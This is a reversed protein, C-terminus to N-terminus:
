NASWSTSNYKMSSAIYARQSGDPMTYGVFCREEGDRIKKWTSCVTDGKIAWVGTDTGSGWDVMMKGDPYSVYVGEGGNATKYTRKFEKSREEIYDANTKMVGGLAVTEELSNKAPGGDGTTQCAALALGFGAAVTLKYIANM